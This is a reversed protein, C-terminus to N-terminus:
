LNSTQILTCAHPTLFGRGYCGTIFSFLQQISNQIFRSFMCCAKANNTQSKFIHMPSDLFNHQRDFNLGFELKCASQNTIFSGSREFLLKLYHATCILMSNPMKNSIATGTITSITMDNFSSKFGHFAKRKMLWAKTVYFSRRLSM